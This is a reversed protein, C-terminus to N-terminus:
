FYILFSQRVKSTEGSNNRLDIIYHRYLRKRRFYHRIDNVNTDNFIPVRIYITGDTLEKIVSNLNNNKRKVIKAFPDNLQKVFTTISDNGQINFGEETLQKYLSNNQSLIPYSSFLIFSFVIFHKKM